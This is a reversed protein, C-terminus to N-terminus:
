PNLGWHPAVLNKGVKVYEAAWNDQVAPHTDPPWLISKRGKFKQVTWGNDLLKNVKKRYDYFVNM